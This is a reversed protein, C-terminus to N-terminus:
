AKLKIRGTTLDVTNDIFTLEGRPDIPEAPVGPELPAATQAQVELKTERMRRRIAPLDQEPVSFTVYIPHIQNITVLADDPAKVINGGRVMLNGTRGEIPSRISTFEVQLQARSVAAEDSLVTAELARFTAEAKEYDDHSAIASDLLKKVREFELKASALQAQDRKLDAQAQRLAGQSPRPDITFLLDGAKVEQGEQFHIKTIQGTIQSRVTVTAYAEVNGINKLEVPIDRGEAQAVVVPVSPKTGNPNQSESQGSRDSCGALFTAALMLILTPTRLELKLKDTPAQSLTLPCALAQVGFGSAEARMSPCPIESHSM